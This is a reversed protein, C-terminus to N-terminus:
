TLSGLQDTPTSPSPTPSVGGTRREVLVSPDCGTCPPYVNLDLAGRGTGLWSRPCAERRHASSSTTSQLHRLGGVLSPGAVRWDPKSPWGGRDPAGPAYHTSTEGASTSSARTSM